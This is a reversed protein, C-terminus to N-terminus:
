FGHGPSGIPNMAQLFICVKLQIFILYLSSFGYESLETSNIIHILIFNWWIGHGPSGIPNMAQLLFFFKLHFSILYWCTFGYESLETSNM